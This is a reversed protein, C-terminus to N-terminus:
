ASLRVLYARDGSCSAQHEAQIKSHLRAAQLQDTLLAESDMEIGGLAGLRGRLAPHSRGDVLLVEVGEDDEEIRIARHRLKPEIYDVWTNRPELVHGDADVTVLGSISTTM